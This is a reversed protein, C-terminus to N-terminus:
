RGVVSVRTADLHVRLRLRADDADGGDLAAVIAEHQALIEQPRRPGRELSGLNMRLQRRFVIYSERLFRM